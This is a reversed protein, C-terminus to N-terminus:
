KPLNLVWNTKETESQELAMKAQHFAAKAKSSATEYDKKDLAQKAQAILPQVTNWEHGAAKAEVAKKEAAMISANAETASVSGAQLPLIFFLSLVLVIIQKNLM